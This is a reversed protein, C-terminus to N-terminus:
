HSLRASPFFGKLTASECPVECSGLFQVRTGEAFMELTTKKEKGEKPVMQRLYLTFAFKVKDRRKMKRMRVGFISSCCGHFAM